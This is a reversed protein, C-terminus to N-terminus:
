EHAAELEPVVSLLMKTYEHQPNEIIQKREGFEVLVGRRMVAIYDAMHSAVGMNHTVIIISAGLENKLNIMEQIIKEIEEFKGAANM